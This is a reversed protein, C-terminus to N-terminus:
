DPEEVAKEGVAVHLEEADLGAAAAGREAIVRRRQGGSPGAHQVAVVGHEEVVVVPQNVLRMRDRGPEVIRADAGLVRQELADAAHLVHRRAVVLRERGEVFAALGLADQRREFARVREGARAAPRQRVAARPDQDAKRAAAVLVHRDERLVGNPLLAGIDSSGRSRIRRAISDLSPGASTANMVAPYGSGRRNRSSRRVIASTASATSIPTGNESGIASPTVIWRELRAAISCPTVNRQIKSSS